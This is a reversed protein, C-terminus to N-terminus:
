VRTDFTQHERGDKGHGLLTFDDVLLQALSDDLLNIKGHM